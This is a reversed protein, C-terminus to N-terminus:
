SMKVEKALKSCLKRMSKGKLEIRYSNHILRDLIADALTADNINEHWLKVPLQSTIITTKQNHRDDLIELLDKRQEQTFAILGFDDLILVDTRALESMRKSYSGDGKAIILDPLLRPLRTYQVTYGDLCAKHALACAIYTKGTGTPGVVLINHHEKVWNCASLQLMLSKDLGRPKKYDIDEMAAMQKLKAKSLRTKLKTNERETLERDILLGLREMFGLDEIDPQKQQEQLAKLVGHLKLNQIKEITQNTLMKKNRWFIKNNNFTNKVESMNM